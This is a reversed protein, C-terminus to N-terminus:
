PVDLLVAASATAEHTDRVTYAFWEDECEGCGPSEPPIYPVYPDCAKPGFPYPPGDEYGVFLTVMAHQEGNDDRPFTVWKDNIQRRDQDYVAWRCTVMYEIPDGDPDWAGTVGLAMGNNCGHSRYRLDFDVRAGCRMDSVTFPEYVFPARNTDVVPDPQIPEPQIMCGSLAVLMVFAFAAFTGALGLYTKYPERRM